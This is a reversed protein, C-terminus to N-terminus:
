KSAQEDALKGIVPLLFTENNYAKYILFIVLGISGLWLTIWLIL